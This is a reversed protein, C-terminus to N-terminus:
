ADARALLTRRTFIPDTTEECRLGGLVEGFSVGFNLGRSRTPTKKM